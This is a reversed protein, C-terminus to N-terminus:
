FMKQFWFIWKVNSPTGCVFLGESLYYWNDQGMKQKVESKTKEEGLVFSVVGLYHLGLIECLRLLLSFSLM